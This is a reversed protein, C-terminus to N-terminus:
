IKDENSRWFKYTIDNMVNGEVQYLVQNTSRSKLPGRDKIYPGVKIYDFYQLDIKTKEHILYNLDRGSYWAVKKSSISKILKALQNIREHDSDGGSLLICTCHEGEGYILDILKQDTLEDGIDEALFASHCGPCHCPCNTFSIALSVENPVEQMVIDTGLYKLM